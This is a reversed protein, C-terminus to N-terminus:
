YEDLGSAEAEDDSLECIFSPAGFEQRAIKEASIEDMEGVIFDEDTIADTFLYHRMDMNM